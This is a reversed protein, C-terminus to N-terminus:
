TLVWPHVRREPSVCWPVRSGWCLVRLALSGPLQLVVEWGGEAGCGLQTMRGASDGDRRRPSSWCLQGELVM